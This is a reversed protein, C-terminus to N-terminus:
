ISAWHRNGSYDEFSIADESAFGGFNIRYLTSLADKAAGYEDSTVRVQVDLDGKTLSGPIATSGVHQIDADPLLAQLQAEVRTFLRSGGTDAHRSVGEETFKSYFSPSSM